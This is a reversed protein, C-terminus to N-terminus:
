LRRTSLMISLALAWTLTNRAKVRSHLLWALTKQAELQSRLRCHKGKRDTLWLLLEGFCTVEAHVWLLHWLTSSRLTGLMKEKHFNDYAEMTRKAAKEDAATWVLLKRLEVDSHGNAVGKTVNAGNTHAAGHGNTVGSGNTIPKPILSTNHIGSLSRDQLYHLADDLVIHSNSGGFGFSNLSVRRLGQVPWQVNQIPVEISYTDANMAPNMKQLLANPLIVGKELIVTLTLKPGGQTSRRTMNCICKVLSALASAGELHGINAKVSGTYHNPTLVINPTGTGHAEVYRTDSMSLGAQKYVHRILEEQSQSSPQTLIPTHGDQNSGISRIVARIMDGNEIAAQVPKLVTPGNMLATAFAMLRSFGQNALVQFISPDLLLNTGTVVACLADGSNLAKCAM